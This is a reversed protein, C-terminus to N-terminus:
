RTNWYRNEDLQREIVTEDSRTYRAANKPNISFIRNVLMSKFKNAISPIQM